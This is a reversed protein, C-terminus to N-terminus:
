RKKRRRQSRRSSAVHPAVPAVIPTIMSLMPRKCDIIEVFASISGVVKEFTDMVKFLAEWKKTDLDPSKKVAGGFAM